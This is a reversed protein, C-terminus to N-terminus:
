FFAFLSCVAPASVQLEFSQAKLNLILWSEKSEFFNARDIFSSFNEHKSPAVVLCTARASVNKNM